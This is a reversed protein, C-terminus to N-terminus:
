RYRVRPDAMAYLLEALFNGLLTLLAVITGIGM